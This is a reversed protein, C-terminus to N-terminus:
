SINTTQITSSLNELSQSHILDKAVESDKPILEISIKTVEVTEDESQEYEKTMDVEIGTMKPKKGRAQPNVNVNTDFINDSERKIISQDVEKKIAISRKNGKTDVITVNQGGSPTSIFTSQRQNSKSRSRSKMENLQLETNKYELPNTQEKKIPILPMKSKPSPLGVKKRKSQNNVSDESMKVQQDLYSKHYNTEENSFSMDNQKNKQSNKSKSM